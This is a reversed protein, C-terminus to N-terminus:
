KGTRQLKKHVNLLETKFLHVFGTLKQIVQNPLIDLLLDGQEMEVSSLLDNLSTIGIENYMKTLPEFAKAMAVQWLTQANYLERHVHGPPALAHFYANLVLFDCREHDQAEHRLRRLYVLNNIKSMARQERYHKRLKKAQLIQYLSTVITACHQWRQLQRQQLGADMRDYCRERSVILQMFKHRQRRLLINKRQQCRYVRYRDQIREAAVRVVPDTEQLEIVQRELTTITQNLRDIESTQHLLLQHAEMRVVTGDLLKADIFISGHATKKSAATIRAETLLKDQTMQRLNAKEQELRSMRAILRAHYAIRDTRFSELKNRLQAAAIVQLVTRDQDQYRQKRVRYGRFVRQIAVASAVFRKNGRRERWRREMLMKEMILRHWRFRRWQRQILCVRQARHRQQYRARPTLLEKRQPRQARENLVKLLEQLLQQRVSSALVLLRMGSVM